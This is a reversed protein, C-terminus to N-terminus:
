NKIKKVFGKPLSFGFKNSLFTIQANYFSLRSQSQLLTDECEIVANSFFEEAKADKEKIAKAKEAEMWQKGEELKAVEDELEPRRSVLTDYVEKVEKVEANDIMNTYINKKSPVEEKLKLSENFLRLINKRFEIIYNKKGRAKATEVNKRLREMRNDVLDRRVCLDIYNDLSKLINSSSIGM